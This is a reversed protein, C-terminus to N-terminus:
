SQDDTPHLIFFTNIRVKTVAAVQVRSSGSVSPVSLKLRTWQLGGGLSFILPVSIMAFALSFPPIVTNLKCSAVNSNEM